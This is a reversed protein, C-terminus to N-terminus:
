PSVTPTTQTLTFTLTDTFMTGKPVKPMSEATIKGTGQKTAATPTLDFSINKNDKNLKTGAYDVEYSIKDTSYNGTNSLEGAGAVAVNVVLDKALDTVLGSTAKLEVTHKPSDTKDFFTLDAPFVVYYSGDSGEPTGAGTVYTVTATGSDAAMAVPAMAATVMVGAMALTLLRKKM